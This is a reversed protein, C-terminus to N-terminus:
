KKPSLEEDLEYYRQILQEIYKKSFEKDKSKKRKNKSTYSKGKIKGNKSFEKDKSKRSTNKSTYEKSKGKIKGKKSFEKDKSKRRTNKSTYEKSKGKIKGKQTFINNRIHPTQIKGGSFRKYM